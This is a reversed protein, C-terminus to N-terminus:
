TGTVRQVDLAFIFLSLPERGTNTLGHLGGAPNRVLDGAAVEFTDAELRMVGTGALVLYYEEEHAPHRHDGISTGPALVAYDLFECGGALEERTALRAAEILGEGGHAIEERLRVAFLNCRRFPAPKSM